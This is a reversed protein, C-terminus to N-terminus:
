AALGRDASAMDPPCPMPAALRYDEALRTIDMVTFDRDYRGVDEEEQERWDGIDAMRVPRSAVLGVWHALLVDLERLGNATVRARVHRHRNSLASAEVAWLPAIRRELVDIGTMLAHHARDRETANGPLRVIM